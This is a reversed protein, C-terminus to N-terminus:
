IVHMNHPDNAVPFLIDYASAVGEQKLSNKPFSKQMLLLLVVVLYGLRMLAHM